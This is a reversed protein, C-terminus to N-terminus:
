RSCVCGKGSVLERETLRALNSCGPNNCCARSPLTYCLAQGFAVLQEIFQLQSAYKKIMAQGSNQEVAALTQQLQEAQALLTLHQKNSRSSSSSSSAQEAAVAAGPLQLHGLQQQLWRFAAIHPEIQFVTMVAHGGAQLKLDSQRQLLLQGSVILGRALLLVWSAAPDQWNVPSSASASAADGVEAGAAARPETVESGAAVEASPSGDAAAAAEHAAADTGASFALHKALRMSAEVTTCAADVHLRGYSRHQQEDAHAAATKMCALMLAQLARRQQKQARAAAPSADNPFAEAAAAVSGAVINCYKLADEASDATTM